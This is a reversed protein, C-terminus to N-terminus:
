RKFAYLLGDDCGVLLYGDVVIPSSHCTSDLKGRWLIQNGPTRASLTALDPKVILLEGRTSAFCLLDGAVVPTGMSALRPGSAVGKSPIVLVDRLAPQDKYRSLEGKDRLNVVQAGGTGTTFILDDLFALGNYGYVADALRLRKGTAPDYEAIQRASRVYLRDKHFHLSEISIPVCDRWRPQGTAADLAYLWDVWQACYVTDGKVIPTTLVFPHETKFSWLKKGSARDLAYFHFDNAGFFLVGGAVAPSCQVPGGCPYAWRKKGSGADLAYMHGDDSGCYVVGDVVAPSAKVEGATKFEWDRKGTALDACVIKGSLSGVYTKGSAAVPSSVIRGGTDLTWAKELPLKLRAEPLGVREASGRELPWDKGPRPPAVPKALLGRVSEAPANATKDVTDPLAREGEKVPAYCYVRGDRSNLYLKGYALAPDGCANNGTVCHWVSKGTELDIAHFSWVAGPKDKQAHPPTAFRWAWIGESDNFSGTGVFAYKGSISPSSCGSGGGFRSEWVQKGTNRDYAVMHAGYNKLIVLEPTITTTGYVIWIPVSWLEKGTAADLVYVRQQGKPMAPQGNFKVIAIKGDSVLPRTPVVKTNTWLIKGSALDLAYAAGHMAETMGRRFEVQTGTFVKGEAISPAVVHPGYKVDLPQRWLEKGTAVDLCLLAAEEVGDSDAVLVKGAAVAPGSRRATLGKSSKLKKEWAPKGTAADLAVLKSRGFGHLWVLLKGDVYSSTQQYHVDNDAFEWRFAGTEADLAVISRTMEMNCFVLRGAVTLGAGADGSTDSDCRYSWVLRLPPKISGDLSVGTSGANGRHQPWTSGTEAGHTVSALLCIIAMARM